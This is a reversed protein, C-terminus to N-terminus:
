SSAMTGVPSGRRQGDRGLCATLAEAIALYREWEAAAQEGPWSMCQTMWEHVRRAVDQEADPHYYQWSSRRVM